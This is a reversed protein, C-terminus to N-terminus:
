STAPCIHILSYQWLRIMLHWDEQEYNQIAIWRDNNGFTAYNPFIFPSDQYQLHVIRHINNSTSDILHGLIQKINRDQKNRRDTIVKAPLQELRNERTSVLSIIETTINESTKMTSISFEITKLFYKDYNILVTTQFIWEIRLNVEFFDIFVDANIIAAIIASVKPEHESISEKFSSLEM